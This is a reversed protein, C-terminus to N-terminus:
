KLDNDFFYEVECSSVTLYDDCKEVASCNILDINKDKCIGSLASKYNELKELEVNYDFFDTVFFKHVGSLNSVM